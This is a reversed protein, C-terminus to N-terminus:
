AAGGQYLVLQPQSQSFCCIFLYLVFIAIEQCVTFCDQFPPSAVAAAEVVVLKVWVGAYQFVCPARLVLFFDM